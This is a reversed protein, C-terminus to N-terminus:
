ISTIGNQSGIIIKDARRHSFIGNAVVGPINNLASEMVSPELLPLNFIDLIINGNDTKFNERYTPSGGLKLIERAVFSRAFPLVEVAVPFKGLLNVRKTDDVICIFKKAMTALIKERTLAGGGGKILQHHENFEDAGDVYLELESVSNPDILPIGQEQLLKATQLSSPVAGEINQRIAHLGQIFPAITSGTGVGIIMNSKIATLAAEAAMKKLAAKDM